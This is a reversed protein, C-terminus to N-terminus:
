VFASQQTLNEITRGQEALPCTLNTIDLFVGRSRSQIGAAAGMLSTKRAPYRETIRVTTFSLSKCIEVELEEGGSYKQYAKKAAIMYM